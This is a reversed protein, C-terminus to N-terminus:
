KVKVIAVIGDEEALIQGGCLSNVLFLGRGGEAYLGSCVISEPLKFFTDSLAKVQVCDEVIKAQLGAQGSTYKLVNGVLECAILKCDFIREQIIEWEALFQCLGDLATQLSAYDKVQFVKVSEM